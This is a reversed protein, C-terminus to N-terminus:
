VDCVDCMVIVESRKPSHRGTQLPHGTSASPLVKVQSSHTFLSSHPTLTIPRGVGCGEGGRGRRGVSQTRYRLTKLSCLEVCARDGFDVFLLDATSDAMGVVRARYWNNDHPFPAAVVIGVAIEPPCHDQSLTSSPLLSPPPSPSIVYNHKTHLACQPPCQQPLTHLMVGAVPVIPLALASCMCLVHVEPGLASYEETMKDVLSDLSAPDDGEVLQLWM